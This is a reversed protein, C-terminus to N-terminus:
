PLDPYVAEGGPLRPGGNRGNLCVGEGSMFQVVADSEADSAADSSLRCIEGEASFVM